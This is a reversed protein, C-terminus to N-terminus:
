CCGQQVGKCTMVWVVLPGGRATGQLPEKELVRPAILGVGERKGEWTWPHFNYVPTVKAGEKAGQTKWVGPLGSQTNYGRQKFFVLM